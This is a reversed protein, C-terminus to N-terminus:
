HEPVSLLTLRRNLAATHKSSYRWAFPPYNSTLYVTTWCAYSSGGKTPVRMPYKDLIRLIMSIPLQGDYDDILLVPEGTYGDFWAMDREITLTYIEEPKHLTFVHHTKGINTEGVILYCILSDRIKKGQIELYLSQLKELGKSHRVISVPCALAIDTMKGGSKLIEIPKELDSRKGQKDKVVDILMNKDKRCYKIAGELDITKRAIARPLISHFTKVRMSHRMVVVGQLHPTGCLPGVEFGVVNTSADLNKVIECEAETYNNLTFCFSRSVPNGVFDEIIGVLCEM